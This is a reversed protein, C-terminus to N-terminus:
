VDNFKLFRLGFQTDPAVKAWSASAELVTKVAASTTPITGNYDMGLPIIARSFRSHLIDAGGGNGGNAKREVEFAQQATGEGYGISGTRGIIAEDNTLKNTKLLTFGQYTAFRTNVDSPAVFGDNQAQLKAYRGHSVMLVNFLPSWEEATAIADYIAAMDWDTAVEHTIAANAALAARVGVLTSFFLSKTIANRHGALATALDGQKGYQTIIQTLDTTALAYNLDLRMADYTGGEISGVDGEDNIDDNSVNFAEGSLPKLYDLSVKRPGGNALASVEASSATLGSQVLENTEQAIATVRVDMKRESGALGAITTNTIAM